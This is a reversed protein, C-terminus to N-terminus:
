LGFMAIRPLFSCISLNGAVDQGEYVGRYVTGYTGHDIVYRLDLKSSDIEWEEKRKQKQAERSLVKNLHKELQIDWSKIDIKDAKMYMRRNSFSENDEKAKSDLRKEEIVTDEVEVSYNSKGAM